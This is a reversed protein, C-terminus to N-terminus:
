FSRGAERGAEYARALARRLQAVGLAHFDLDDRGRQELTKLRLTERAIRQITQEKHEDRRKAM